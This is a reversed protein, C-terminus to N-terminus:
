NKKWRPQHGWRPASRVCESLDMSQSIGSGIDSRHKCIRQLFLRSYEECHSSPKRFRVFVECCSGSGSYSVRLGTTSSVSLMRGLSQSNDAAPSHRPPGPLHCARVCARRGEGCCGLGLLPHHYRLRFLPPALNLSSRNREIRQPQDSIDGGILPPVSM